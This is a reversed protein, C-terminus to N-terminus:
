RIVPMEATRSIEFERPIVPWAIAPRFRYSLAVRVRSRSQSALVVPEEITLDEASYGPIGAIEATLAATIGQKWRDVTADTFRHTGGFSAGERAANTVGIHTTAFRGFDVCILVLTILLPLILALEILAAGRRSPQNCAM